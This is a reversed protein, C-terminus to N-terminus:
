NPYNDRMFNNEFSVYSEFVRFLDDDDTINNLANVLENHATLIRENDTINEKDCYRQISQKNREVLESGMGDHLLMTPFSRRDIALSQLQFSNKDFYCTITSGDSTVLTFFKLTETRIFNNSKLNDNYRSVLRQVEQNM